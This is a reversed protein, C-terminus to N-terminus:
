EVFGVDRLGIVGFGIVNIWLGLICGLELVERNLAGFDLVGCDLDLVERDLAGSM